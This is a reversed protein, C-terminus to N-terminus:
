YALAIPEGGLVDNAMEHPNMIRLPYARHEGNISVGFVREDAGLYDAQDAPLTPAFQLDPIGDPAVGGWALETLDIRSTEDADGLFVQYRESIVSLLGIKWKLYNNPPRFQDPRKGLWEAAESWGVRRSGFNQGTLQNVVEAMFAALVPNSIFRSLEVIVPVQSVDGAQLGDRLAQLTVDVTLRPGLSGGSFLGFMTAEPDYDEPLPQRTPTPTPEGADQSASSAGGSGTEAQPTVASSDGGCAAVLAAMLLVAGAVRVSFPHWSM